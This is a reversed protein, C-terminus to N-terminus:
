RPTAQGAVVDPGTLDVWALGSGGLGLSTV